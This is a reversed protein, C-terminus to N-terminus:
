ILELLSNVWFRWTCPDRLRLGSINGSFQQNVVGSQQKCTELFQLVEEFFREWGWLTSIAPHLLTKQPCQSILQTLNLHEAHVPGRGGEQDRSRSAYM